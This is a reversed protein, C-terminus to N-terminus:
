PERLAEVPSLRAARLGAWLSALGAAVLAAAGTLAAWGATLHPYLPQVLGTGPTHVPLGHSGWPLVAAAGLAVAPDDPARFWANAWGVRRWAVQRELDPEVATAVLQTAERDDAPALAAGFVIRPALARVGPVALIRARLGPSDVFDLTLPMAESAALYGARHVQVAGHVGDVLMSTNLRQVGGTAARLLVVAAVGLALAGGSLLSRRRRRALNRAALSWTRVAGAYDFRTWVIAKLRWPLGGPGA